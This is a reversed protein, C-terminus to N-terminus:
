RYSFVPIINLVSQRSCSGLLNEAYHSCDCFNRLGFKQLAMPLCKANKRTACYRCYLSGIPGVMSTAHSSLSIKSYGLMRSTLVIELKGDDRRSYIVVRSLIITKTIPRYFRCLNPEVLRATIEVDVGLFGSFHSDVCMLSLRQRPLSLHSSSFFLISFRLIRRFKSVEVVSWRTSDQGRDRVHVRM